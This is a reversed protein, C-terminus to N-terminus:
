AMNPFCVKDLKDEASSICRIKGLLCWVSRFHWGSQQNQSVHSLTSVCTFLISVKVTFDGVDLKSLVMCVLHSNWDRSSHYVLHWTYWFGVPVVICAHAYQKCFSEWACKRCSPIIEDIGVNRSFNLYSPTQRVFFFLTGVLTAYSCVYGGRLYLMSGFTSSFLWLLFIQVNFVSMTDLGPGNMM